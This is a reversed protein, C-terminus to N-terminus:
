WETSVLGWLQDSVDCPSCTTTDILIPTALEAGYHVGKLLHPPDQHEWKIRTVKHYLQSLYVASPIVETTDEDVEQQLELLEQQSSKLSELERQMFQLESESFQEKAMCQELQETVLGLMQEMMNRQEVTDLLGQCVDEEMQGVDRLIQLLLHSTEVHREHFALTQNKILQLQNVAKSSNIMGVLSVTTEELELFNHAQAMSVSTYMRIDCGFDLSM